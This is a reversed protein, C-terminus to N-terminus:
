KGPTVVSTAVSVSLGTVVEASDYAVPLSTVPALVSSVGVSSVRYRRYRDSTSPNERMLMVMKLTRIDM